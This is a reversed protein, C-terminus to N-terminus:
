DDILDNDVYLGLHLRFGIPRAAEHIQVKNNDELPNELIVIARAGSGQRGAAATLLRLLLGDDEARGAASRGHLTHVSIIVFVGSPSKLTTTTTTATTRPALLPWITPVIKPGNFLNRYILVDLRLHNIGGMPGAALKASSKSYVALTKSTCPSYRCLDGIDRRIKLWYTNKWCFPYDIITHERQCLPLSM